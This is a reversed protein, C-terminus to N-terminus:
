TMLWSASGNGGQHFITAKGNGAMELQGALGRLFLAIKNCRYLHSVIFKAVLAASLQNEDIFNQDL